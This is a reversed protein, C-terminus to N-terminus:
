TEHQGSNQTQYASVAASWAPRYIILLERKGLRIEEGNAGTVGEFPDAPLKGDMFLAMMRNDRADHFPSRARVDATESAARVTVGIQKSRAQLREELVSRVESETRDSRFVVNGSATCTRAESFGEARCLEVLTRM